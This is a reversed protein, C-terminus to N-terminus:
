ESNRSNGIARRFNEHRQALQGFSAESVLYSDASTGEHRYIALLAAFVARFLRPDNRREVEDLIPRVDVSTQLKDNGIALTIFRIDRRHLQNARGENFAALLENHVSLM